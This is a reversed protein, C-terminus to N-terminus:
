YVMQTSHIYPGSPNRARIKKPEEFKKLIRPRYTWVKEADGVLKGWLEETLGHQEVLPKILDAKHPGEPMGEVYIGYCKEGDVLMIAQRSYESYPKDRVVLQIDGDILSQALHEPYYASPSQGGLPLEAGDSLIGANPALEQVQQTLSDHDIGIKEGIKTFYIVGAELASLQEVQKKMHSLTSGNGIFLDVHKLRSEPIEVSHAGHWIRQGGINLLYGISGKSDEFCEVRYPGFEVIKGPDLVKREFNYIDEFSGKEGTIEEYNERLYTWTSSSAIVGPKLSRMQHLGKVSDPTGEVLVYKPKIGKIGLLSPINEPTNIVLSSTGVSFLTSTNNRKDSGEGSGLVTIFARGGLELYQQEKVTRLNRAESLSRRPIGAKELWNEVTTRPIGERVSIETTSLRLTYYLHGLYSESTMGLKYVKGPHAEIKGMVAKDPRCTVCAGKPVMALGVCRGGIVIEHQQEADWVTEPIVEISFSPLKGSLILEIGLPHWIVGRDVVGWGTIPDFHIKDVFGIVDGKLDGHLVVIPQRYMSPWFSKIGRKTFYTPQGDMPLVEGPKIAPGDLILLDGVRTVKMDNVALNMVETTSCTGTSCQAAMMLMSKKEETIEAKRFVWAGDKKLFVYEGKLKSGSFNVRVLNNSDSSVKVVGKDSTDFSTVIKRTFSASHGPKLEGTTPILKQLDQTDRRMATVTEEELPDTDRGFDWADLVKTGDHIIIWYRTIPLGRKVEPGKHWVRKVAFQLGAALKLTVKNRSIAEVLEDRVEQYKTKKWYQLNSPIQERVHRPIASIGKPPYWKQSVARSSIAYPNADKKTFFSLWAFTQPVNWEEKTTLRRVVLRRGDMKGGHLFYEHFWSKQAGYEITGEDMIFYHAKLSSTAGAAGPEIEGEETLWAHPQPEKTQTLIKMNPNEFVPETDMEFTTQALKKIEALSMEQTRKTFESMLQKGASRSRLLETVEKIEAEKLQAKTLGTNKKVVSDDEDLLMAKVLSKGTDWTWGVLRTDDIEARFDGHVSLGRIHYQLVYRWTKNENPYILYPNDKQLRKDMESGERVKGYFDKLASVDVRFEDNRSYEVLEKRGYYDRITPQETRSFSLQHNRWTGLLERTTRSGIITNVGLEKLTGYSSPTNPLYTFGDGQELAVWGAQQAAISSEEAYRGSVLFAKRLKDKLEMEFPNVELKQKGKSTDYIEKATEIPDPKTKDERKELVQPHFWHYTQDDIKNMEKVTVRIIDGLDAKISTNFTKGLISYNQGKYSVVKVGDPSDIPAEKDPTEKVPGVAGIYNFSGDTKNVGVVLADVEYSTKMKSWLPTNGSLRYKSEAQKFMAGESGSVKSAKEADKILQEASTVWSIQNEWLKYTFSKADKPTDRIPMELGRMRNRREEYPLSHLDKGDLYLIDFVHLAWLKDDVAKTAGKAFAPAAAARGLNTFDEDYPTAETDLVVSTAPLKKMDAVLGPLTKTIDHGSETFLKVEDDLKHAQVRFGDVKVETSQKNQVKFLQEALDEVSNLGFVERSSVGKKTTKMQAFPYLPEVGSRKIMLNFRADASMGEWKGSDVLSKIQGDASAALSLTREKNDEFLVWDSSGDIRYMTSGPILYFAEKGEGKLYSITDARNQFYFSKAHQVHDSTPIKKLFHKRVTAPQKLHESQRWWPMDMMRFIHDGSVFGDLIFTRPEDVALLEDRIERPLDVEEMGKDFAMIGTENRHIMIRTGEARTVYYSDEFLEYVSDRDKSAFPMPAPIPSMPNIDTKPEAMTVNESPNMWLEYLPIYPGNPGSADWVLEIREALEEGITELFKKKLEESLQSKLLIDLDSGEKGLVTSGILSIFAPDVMFPERLKILRMMDRDGLMMASFTMPSNHNMGRDTMENVYLQHLEKLESRSIFLNDKRKITKEWLHLWRHDDVIVADHDEKLAKQGKSLISRARVRTLLNIEVPLLMMEFWGSNAKAEFWALFDNLHEAPMEEIADQITACYANPDKKNKNARVCANFDKYKGFPM